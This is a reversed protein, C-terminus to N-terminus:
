HLEQEPLRDRDLRLCRWGCFANAVKRFWHGGLDTLSSLVVACCLLVWTAPEPAESGTIDIFFAGQDAAFPGDFTSGPPYNYDVPGISRDSGAVIGGVDVVRPAAQVVPQLTGWWGLDQNSASLVLYYMGPQLALGTFLTTPTYSGTVSFSSSAVESAPTAGPGIQTVLYATGSSQGSTADLVTTISVDNYEQDISWASGLVQFYPGGITSPVYNPGTIDFITTASTRSPVTLVVALPLWDILMRCFCKM